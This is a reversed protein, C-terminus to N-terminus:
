ENVTSIAKPSKLQINIFGEPLKIQDDLKHWVECIDNKLVIM